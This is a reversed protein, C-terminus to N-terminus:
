KNSLACVRMVIDLFQQWRSRQEAAIRAEKLADDWCQNHLRSLAKRAHMESTGDLLFPDAMEHRSFEKRAEDILEQVSEM